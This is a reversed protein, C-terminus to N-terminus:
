VSKKGGNVKLSKKPFRKVIYLILSFLINIRGSILPEEVMPPKAERPLNPWTQLYDKRQNLRETMDSEKCAWPSYSLCSAPEATQPMRWALTGCHTAMEEEM